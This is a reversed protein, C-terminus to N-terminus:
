SRQSPKKKKVPTTLVKEIPWGAKIRSNLTGDDICVEASWQFLTLTRDKYTYTVGGRSTPNKDEKSSPRKQGTPTNMAEDIDWGNRIRSVFCVFSVCSERAWQSITKKQGNHEIFRNTRKNNAQEEVTAWRVNGPEYNGNQNPYRDISHRLSPREGLFALFRVFDRLEPHIVVGRGGYNHYAVHTPDECRTVMSSWSRYTPTGFYGHKAAAKNKNVTFDRRLCGCSSCNGHVVYVRPRTLLKGCDCIFDQVAIKSGEPKYVSSVTTLRGFTEQSFDPAIWTERAVIRKAM